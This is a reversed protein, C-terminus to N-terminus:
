VYADWRSDDTEPEPLWFLEIEKRYDDLLGKDYAELVKDKKEEYGYRLALLRAEAVLKDIDDGEYCEEYVDALLSASYCDGLEMGRNLYGLAKDIDPQLGFNGYYFSSGLYYGCSGEGLELGKELREIIRSQYSVQSPHDLKEFEEQPLDAGLCHCWGCGAAMGEQMCREYEEQRGEQSLLIALDTYCRISGAEIGKRYIGEAGGRGAKELAFGLISYWDHDFDKESEIVREAEQVVKEPECPYDFTGAIRYRARQMRALESGRALGEALLRGAEDYDPFNDRTDGNAVMISLACYADAVGEEMAERFLDEALGYSKAHEPALLYHRRGLAYKAVPLPSAKIQAWDEDSLKSIMDKSHFTGLFETSGNIVLQQRLWVCLTFNTYDRGGESVNEHSHGENLTITRGSYELSLGKDDSGIFKIGAFLGGPDKYRLKQGAELSDMDFETRETFWRSNGPDSPSYDVDVVLKTLRKM